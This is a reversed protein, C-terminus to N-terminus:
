GIASSIEDKSEPGLVATVGSVGAGDGAASAAPLFVSRSSPVSPCVAGGAASTRLTVGGGEPSALPPAGPVAASALAVTAGAVVSVGGAAAAGVAM